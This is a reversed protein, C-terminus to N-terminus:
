YFDEVRTKNKFKVSKFKVRKLPLHTNGPYGFFPALVNSEKFFPDNVSAVPETYVIFSVNYLGMWAMGQFINCENLSLKRNM